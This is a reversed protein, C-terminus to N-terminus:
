VDKLLYEVDDLTFPFKRNDIFITPTSTIFNARLWKANKTSSLQPLVPVDTLYKAKWKQIDKYEYWDSLANCLVGNGFKINIETLADILEEIVTGLLNYGFFRITIRLSDPYTKLWRILVKWADTCPRCDFSLIISIHISANDKGLHIEDQSFEMDCAPEKALMARIVEPTRKLRLYLYEYNRIRIYEKWLPKVYAWAIAPLAFGSFLSFVTVPWIPAFTLGSLYYIALAIEAWLVGIVGLCLPCWKKVKIKQYWLSFVTYPFTCLALALLWSIVTNTQQAVGALILSFLNGAFYCLGIDSLSLWGFLKSATSQLVANCNTRRNLHCVKHLLRNSEGFEHMTLLISVAIGLVCLSFLCILATSWTISVTWAMVCMLGAIVALPARWCLLNRKLSTKERELEWQVEDQAAYLAINSWEAVFEELSTCTRQKKANYYHVKDDIIDEVVIFAGGNKKLHVVTPFGNGMLSEMNLRLVTNEIHLEDMADIMAYISNNDPHSALLHKLKTKDFVIGIDKFYYCFITYLQKYM